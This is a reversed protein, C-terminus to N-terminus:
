GNEFLQSHGFSRASSLRSLSLLVSDLLSALALGLTIRTSLHNMITKKISYATADIMFKM